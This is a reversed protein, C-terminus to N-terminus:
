NETTRDGPGRTPDVCSDHDSRGAWIKSTKNYTSTENRRVTIPSGRRAKSAEDELIRNHVNGLLFFLTVDAKVHAWTNHRTPHSLEFWISKLLLIFRPRWFGLQAKWKDVYEGRSDRYALVQKALTKAKYDAHHDGRIEKADDKVYQVEFAVPSAKMQIEYVAKKGYVAVIEDAHVNKQLQEYGQLHANINVKWDPTQGKHIRKIEGLGEIIQGTEDDANFERSITQIEKGGNVAVEYKRMDVQDVQEVVEGKIWIKYPTDPYKPYPESIGRLKGTKSVGDLKFSVNDGVKFDGPEEKKMANEFESIVIAKGAGGGSPEGGDVEFKPWPWNKVPWKEVIKDNLEIRIDVNKVEVHDGENVSQVASGNQGVRNWGDTLTITYTDTKGDFTEVTGKVLVHVDARSSKGKQKKGLGAELISKLDKQYTPKIALDGKNVFLPM